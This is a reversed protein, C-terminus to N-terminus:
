KRKIDIFLTGDPQIEAYFVESVSTVGAKQLNQQLWDTNLNLKELSESTIKGDLVVGTAIPFVKKRISINMDEKTVPQGSEKKMVSLKGDTEFIAYEVEAMSFVNKQRLIARLSDLDLRCSRLAQEMIKGEKILIVPEGTLLKRAHVSKIDIYSMILTYISWGALAILGNRISLQHDVVLSAAIEGIAIASVFNFFTMQSIEKRGMIRTLLFLVFFGLTIRLLLTHLEM